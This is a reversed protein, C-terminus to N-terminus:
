GSSAVGGVVTGDVHMVRFAHIHAVDGEGYFCPTGPPVGCMPCTITLAENWFPASM